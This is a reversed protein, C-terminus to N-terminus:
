KKVVTNKVLRGQENTSFTVRTHRNKVKYDFSCTCSKHVKWFDSPIDNIPYTGLMTDCWACCGAGSRTVYSEFGADDYAKANARLSDTVAGRAINEAVGKEILFKVEENKEAARYRDVIHTIRSEDNKVEVPNIGVKVRSNFLKQVEKSAGLATNQMSRYVPALIESAYEALIDDTVDISNAILKSSTVDGLTLSFKVADDYTATKNILKNRLNAVASKMRTDNKIDNLIQKQSTSYDM